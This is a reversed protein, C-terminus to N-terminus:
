SNTQEPIAPLPYYNNIKSLLLACLLSISFLKVRAIIVGLRLKSIQLSIGLFVGLIIGTWIYSYSRLTMDTRNATFDTGLLFLTLPYFFEATLTFHVLVALILLICHLYDYLISWRSGLERKIVDAMNTENGRACCDWNWCSTVWM